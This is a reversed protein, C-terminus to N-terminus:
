QFPAVCLAHEFFQLPFLVVEKMRLSKRLLTCSGQGFFGDLGGRSGIARRGTRGVHGLVVPICLSIETM